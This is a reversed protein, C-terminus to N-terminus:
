QRLCGLSVTYCCCSKASSFTGSRPRLPIRYRCTPTFAFTQTVQTALCQRQARQGPGILSVGFCSPAWRIVRIFHNGRSGSMFDLSQKPYNCLTRHAWSFILNFFNWFLRTPRLPSSRPLLPLPNTRNLADSPMNKRGAFLVYNSSRKKDQILAAICHISDICLFCM